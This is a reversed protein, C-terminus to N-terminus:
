NQAHQREGGADGKIATGPTVCLLSSPGTVSLWLWPHISAGQVEKHQFPQIVATWKHMATIDLEGNTCPLKISLEGNSM